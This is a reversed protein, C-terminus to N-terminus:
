HWVSAPCRVAKRSLSLCFITHKGTIVEGLFQDWAEYTALFCSFTHFSFFINEYKHEKYIVQSSAHIKQERNSSCHCSGLHLTQHHSHKIFCLLQQFNSTKQSFILCTMLIKLRKKETVKTIHKCICIIQIWVKVQLGLVLKAEVKSTRAHRWKSLTLWYKQIAQKQKTLTM